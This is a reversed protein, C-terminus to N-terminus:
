FSVELLTCPFSIVLRKSEWDVVHADAGHELLFEAVEVQLSRSAYKPLILTSFYRALVHFVQTGM